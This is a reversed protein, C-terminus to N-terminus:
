KVSDSIFLSIYLLHWLINYYLIEGYSWFGLLFLNVGLNLCVVLKCWSTLFKILGMVFESTSVSILLRKTLMYGLDSLNMAYNEESQWLFHIGMKKWFNLRISFSIANGFENQSALIVSFVCGPHPSFVVSIKPYLSM